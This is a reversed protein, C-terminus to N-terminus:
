RGKLKHLWTSILAFDSLFMLLLLLYVVIIPEIPGTAGQM